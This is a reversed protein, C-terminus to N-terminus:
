IVVVYILYDDLLFVNVFNELFDVLYIRILNVCVNIFKTELM